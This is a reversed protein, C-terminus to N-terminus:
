PSRENQMAWKHTDQFLLFIKKHGLADNPMLLRMCSVCSARSELCLKNHLSM